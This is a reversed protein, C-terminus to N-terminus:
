RALITFKFCSSHESHWFERFVPQLLSGQTLKILKPNILVLLYCLTRPHRRRYIVRTKKKKKPKRSNLYFSMAWVEHFQTQINQNVEVTLKIMFEDGTWMKRPSGEREEDWFNRVKTFYSMAAHAVPKSWGIKVPIRGEEQLVM